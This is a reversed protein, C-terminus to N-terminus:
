RQFDVVSCIENPTDSIHNILIADGPLSMLKFNPLSTLELKVKMRIILYFLTTIM